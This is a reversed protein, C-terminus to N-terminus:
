FNDFNTGDSPNGDESQTYDMTKNQEAEEEAALEVTEKADTVFSLQAVLTERDVVGILNNIMESTELNNQPLARRFVADVEECPVVASIGNTEKLFANYLKFRETLGDEFYREKDKAHQEFALLKYALAVGSSNGAFEEDSMDPTMSIKHIDTALTQRLVDADAENINKIIYEIKADVPINSVIRGEKLERRQEEDFDTGYFALIADVLRERDIVRDSQLINYADILSIVPEFDGIRDSSNFYEVIPVEGYVHLPAFYNGNEDLSDPSAPALKDGDLTLEHAASATLVTLDYKGAIPRGQPDIQPAYIIAFMKEHKATNDYVLVINKPDIRTSLSKTEEDTYIREFAHGYISADTALETDLKQITQNRYCNVIPQINYDESVLYQVPNGLIYGVNTKTIYRAFNTVAIVAHPAPRETVPEGGYYRELRDYYKVLAKRESGAILEKILAGSPTDFTFNREYDRSLYTVKEIM